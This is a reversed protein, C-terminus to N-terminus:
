SRPVSALIATKELVSLAEAIVAQVGRGESSLADVM